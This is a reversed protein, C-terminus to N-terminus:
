LAIYSVASGLRARKIAHVSSSNFHTYQSVANTVIVRYIGASAISTPSVLLTSNTANPINAQDKQWQYVVPGGSVTVSFTAGAPAGWLTRVRLDDPRLRFFFGSMHVTGGGVCCSIWGDASRRPTDGARGVM